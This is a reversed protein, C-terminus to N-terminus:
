RRGGPRSTVAAGKAVTCLALGASSITRHCFLFKPLRQETPQGRLMDCQFRQQRVDEGRDRGLESGIFLGAKVADFARERIYLPALHM